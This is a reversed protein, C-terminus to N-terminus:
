SKAKGMDYIGIPPAADDTVIGTTCPRFISQLILTRDADQAANDKYLALYTLIMTVRENCETRLHLNSMFIRAVIRIGWIALASSLILMGAKSLIPIHEALTATFSTAPPQSVLVTPGPGSAPVPATTAPVAAVPTAPTAPSAQVATGSSTQAAKTAAANANADDFINHAVTPIFGILLLLLFVFLGGSVKAWLLHDRARETWYNVPAELKLREKLAHEFDQVRKNSDAVIAELKTKGQDDRALLQMERDKCSQDFLTFKSDRQSTFQQEVTKWTNDSEKEFDLLCSASRKEFGGLTDQLSNNVEQANALERQHAQLTEALAAQHSAITESRLGETFLRANIAANVAFMTANGRSRVYVILSDGSLLALTLVGEEQSRNALDTVYKGATSTSTVKISSLYGVINQLLEANDAKLDAAELIGVIQELCTRCYSLTPLFEVGSGDFRSYFDFETRAWALVEPLDRFMVPSGAITLTIMQPLLPSATPLIGVSHTKVFDRSSLFHHS